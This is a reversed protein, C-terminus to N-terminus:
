LPLKMLKSTLKHPKSEWPPTLLSGKPSEKLSEIIFFWWEKFYDRHESIKAFSYAKPMVVLRMGTKILADVEHRHSKMRGDCTIIAEGGARHFDLIMDVDNMGHYNLQSAHILHEDALLTVIQFSLNLDFLVKL